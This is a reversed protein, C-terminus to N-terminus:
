SSTTPPAPSKPRRAGAPFFRGFTARGAHWLCPFYLDPRADFAALYDEKSVLDYKCLDGGGMPPAMLQCSALVRPALRKLQGGGLQGAISGLVPLLKVVDTDANIEGSALLPAVRDFVSAVLKAVDPLLDEAQEFPLAQCLLKAGGPLEIEAVSRAM